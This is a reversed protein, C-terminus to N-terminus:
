LGMRILPTKFYMSGLLRGLVEASCAPIICKKDTKIGLRGRNQDM